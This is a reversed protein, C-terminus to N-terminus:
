QLLTLLQILDADAEFAECTLEVLSNYTIESDEELLVVLRNHDKGQYLAQLERKL